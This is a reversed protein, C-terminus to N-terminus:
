EEGETKDKLPNILEPTQINRTSTEIITLEAIDKESKVGLVDFRRAAPLIRTELTGVAKNYAEVARSLNRSLDQFHDTLTSVRDYLDRGLKSIQQANEAIKEQQWGYYVAKLLAILTPPTALLVGKQFAEEMLLPEQELAANYFHEGPLFLVVFDPSSDLPSWYSKSSLKTVHSKIQQAHRKLHRQREEEDTAEIAELYAELPAKADVVVNKGGPLNVVLDPRLRGEETKMSAQEDFDCHAVMGAMEVVRRLQIEGWRGRVQPQRLAKVLNGTELQLKEQSLALSKVQETLSGYAERRAKELENVQIVVQELSTKIPQVLSKVAQQRLELDGRAEVQFKELNTRALDLFAQSNSKLADASLAKFADTLNTRAQDLLALKEQNSQREHELKVQLETALRSKEELDRRSQDLEARVQGAEGEARELRADLGTIRARALLWAVAAGVALGVMLVVAWFLGAM